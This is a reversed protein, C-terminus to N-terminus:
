VMEPVCKQNLYQLCTWLFVTCDKTDWVIGKKNNITQQPYFVNCEEKDWSCTWCICKTTSQLYPIIKFWKNWDHLTTDIAAVDVLSLNVCLINRRDLINFSMELHFINKDYFSYDACVTLLKSVVQTKMSYYQVTYFYYFSFLLVSTCKALTTISLHWSRSGWNRHENRQIAETKFSTILGVTSCWVLFRGVGETTESTILLVQDLFYYKLM